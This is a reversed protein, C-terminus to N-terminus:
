KVLLVKRVAKYEGATLRVLYIGAPMEAANWIITHTGATQPGNVLTAVCKGAADYITLHVPSEHLSAFNQTRVNYVISAAPNFPNPSCQLSIDSSTSAIETRTSGECIEPPCPNGLYEWIYSTLTIPKGYLGNGDACFGRKGNHGGAWFGMDSKIKGENPFPWLPESTLSDYGPDDWLTGSVGYRNIVNAGIDGGDSAAGKLPSNDEIRCIYKLQPNLYTDNPGASLQNTGGAGNFNDTNNYYNVHDFSLVLPASTSYNFVAVGTNMILTNSILATAIPSYFQLARNNYYNPDSTINGITLHALTLSPQGEKTGGGYGGGDWMV